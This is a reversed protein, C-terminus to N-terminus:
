AGGDSDSYCGYCYQEERATPHGNHSSVRRAHAVWPILSHTHNAGGESNVTVEFVAARISGQGRSRLLQLYFVNLASLIIHYKFSYYYFYLYIYKIVDRM